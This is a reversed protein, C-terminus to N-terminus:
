VLCGLGLSLPVCVCRMGLYKALLRVVNGHTVILVHKGALLVPAIKEQCTHGHGSTVNLAWALSLSPFGLDTRRGPLSRSFPRANSFSTASMHTCSIVHSVHTCSILRMVNQLDRADRQACTAICPTASVNCHQPCTATNLVRQLTSSVNCHQPCTATNLVHQLTAICPTAVHQWLTNGCAAAFM